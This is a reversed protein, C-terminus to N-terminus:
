IKARVREIAMELIESNDFALEPLEKM